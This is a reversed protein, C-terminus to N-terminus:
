PCSSATWSFGFRDLPANDAEDPDHEIDAINLLLSPQDALGQFAMWVGPKVTLRAYAEPGLEVVEFASEDHLVFRVRGVPVVLNLTMRRHRKWGKIDGPNVSSFYAEGFGCYGTSSRKMAHLLDGRPHAIRREATILYGDM